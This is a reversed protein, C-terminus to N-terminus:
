IGIALLVGFAASVIVIGAAFLGVILKEPKTM